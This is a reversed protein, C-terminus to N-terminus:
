NLHETRSSEKVRMVTLSLQEKKWIQQEPFAERAMEVVIYGMEVQIQLSCNHCNSHGKVMQRDTFNKGIKLSWKVLLSM